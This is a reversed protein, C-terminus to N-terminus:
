NRMDSQGTRVYASRTEDFNGSIGKKESLLYYKRATSKNHPMLGAVKSSFELNQEHM